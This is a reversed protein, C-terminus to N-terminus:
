KCHEKGTRGYFIYAVAPVGISAIVKFPNAQVFNAAQHSIGLQQGDIVRVGSNLVAQRYLQRM